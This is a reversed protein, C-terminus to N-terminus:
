ATVGERLPEVEDVSYFFRHGPQRAMGLDRGPDDEVVLALHVQGEADQEIAEILATKGELMMDIADASKKPHIRVTEGVKLKKNGKAISTLPQPPNFFEEISQSERMVGHIQMVDRLGARETRELLRRAHGDVRRMELKEEDTMTLVRLTLMEDIETGDFFSGNSEPAIQPYDYLIIPSSLMTGREGRGEDGVLVPWTGINKCHTSLQTFDGPPDMQSVFGGGTAELITHTSALTRMIVEDQDNCQAGSLHTQNLVRVTIKYVNEGAPAAELEVLGELAEQRRSIAAPAKNSEDTLPEFARSAKISIPASACKPQLPDLSDLLVTVERETAEQWSQHLVGGVSLESVTRFSEEGETPMYGVERWMPHLFRVTVELRASQGRTQLLCQTQNVCLEAGGQSDSYDKPYVRGFTFRERRNKTASARYPYLIYGEYLVANVIQDLQPSKM